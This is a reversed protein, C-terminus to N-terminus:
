ATCNKRLRRLVSPGFPLLLLAGVLLTSPEPVVFSSGNWQFSTEGVLTPPQGSVVNFVEFNLLFPPIAGPPPPDGNFHATFLLSNVSPESTSLTTVLPTFTSSWGLASLGPSEFTGGSTITGTIENFYAGHALFDLAWSGTIIPPGIPEIVIDALGTTSWGLMFVLAAIGSTLNKLANAKM